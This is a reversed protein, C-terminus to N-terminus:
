AEACAAYKGFHNKLAMVHAVFQAETYNVEDLWQWYSVTLSGDDIRIAVDPNERDVVQVDCLRLQRVLRQPAPLSKEVIKRASIDVAIDQRDIEVVKEGDVIIEGDKGETREFYRVLLNTDAIKKHALSLLKLIQAFVMIIQEHDDSVALTMIIATNKLRM